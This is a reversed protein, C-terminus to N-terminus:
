LFALPNISKSKQSYIIIILLNDFNWTPCPMIAHESSPAFLNDAPRGQKFQSNKINLSIGLIKFKYNIKQNKPWTGSESPYALSQNQLFVLPYIQGQQELFLTKMRKKQSTYGVFTLIASGILQLYLIEVIIVWLVSRVRLASYIGLQKLIM